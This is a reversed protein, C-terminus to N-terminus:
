APLDETWPNFVPGGWAEFDRVNRTVITLGHVEATAAISADMVPMTRKAMEAQRRLRGWAEAVALSIPLIQADPGGISLRYWTELARRRAGEPVAEVGYRIEAVTTTSLYIDQSRQASLWRVVGTNPQRKTVESIVNTDILYSM